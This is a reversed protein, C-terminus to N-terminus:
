PEITVQKGLMLGIGFFFEARLQTQGNYILVTPGGGYEFALNGFRTTRISGLRLGLGFLADQFDPTASEQSMGGIVTMEWYGGAPATAKFFRRIGFQAVMENRDFYPYMGGSIEYGLRDTKPISYEISGSVLPEFGPNPIFVINTNVPTVFIAGTYSTVFQPDQARLVEARGLGFVALIAICFAARM